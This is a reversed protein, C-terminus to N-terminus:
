WSYCLPPHLSGDGSECGAMKLCTVYLVWPYLCLLSCFVAGSFYHEKTVEPLLLCSPITVETAVAAVDLSSCSYEKVHSWEYQLVKHNCPCFKLCFEVAGPIANAKWYENETSICLIM